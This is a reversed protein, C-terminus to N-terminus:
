GLWSRVHDFGSFRISLYLIADTGKESNRKNRKFKNFLYVGLCLRVSQTLISLANFVYFTCKSLKLQTSSTSTFHFITFRHIFLPFSFSCRRSHVVNWSRKLSNKINNENGNLFPFHNFVKHFDFVYLCVIMCWSYTNFNFSVLRFRISNILHFSRRKESKMLCLNRIWESYEHLKKERDREREGVRFVKNKM